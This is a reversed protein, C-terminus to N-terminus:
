FEDDIWQVTAHHIRVFTFSFETYLTCLSALCKVTLDKWNTPSLFMNHEKRWLSLAVTAQTVFCLELRLWKLFLYCFAENDSFSQGFSALWRSTSRQWYLNQWSGGSFTEIPPLSIESTGNFSKDFLLIWAYASHPWYVGNDSETGTVSWCSM